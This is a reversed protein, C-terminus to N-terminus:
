SYNRSGTIAPLEVQRTGTVLDLAALPDAGNVM